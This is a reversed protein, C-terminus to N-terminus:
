KLKLRCFGDIIKNQVFIQKNANSLEQELLKIEAVLTATETSDNSENSVVASVAFANNRPVIKPLRRTSKPSASVVPPPPATWLSRHHHHNAIHPPSTNEDASARVSWGGYANFNVAQQSKRVHHM